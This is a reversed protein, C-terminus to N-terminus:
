RDLLYSLNLYVLFGLNGKVQNQKCNQPHDRGTCRCFKFWVSRHSNILPWIYRFSDTWSEPEHAAPHMHADHPRLHAYLIFYARAVYTHMRICDRPSLRTVCPLKDRPFSFLAPNECFKVHSHASDAVATRAPCKLARSISTRVVFSMM